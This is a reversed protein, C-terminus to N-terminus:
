GAGRRHRETLAAYVERPMADRAPRARAFFAETLEPNDADAAIGRNIAADEAETPMEIKRGM